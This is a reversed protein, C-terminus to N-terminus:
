VGKVLADKNPEFPATTEYFIKFVFYHIGLYKCALDEFIFDIADQDKLLLLHVNNDM